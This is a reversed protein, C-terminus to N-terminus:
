FLGAWAIAADFYNHRRRSYYHLTVAMDSIAHQSSMCSVCYFRRSHVLPFILLDIAARLGFNMGIFIKKTMACDSYNYARQGSSKAPDTTLTVGEIM